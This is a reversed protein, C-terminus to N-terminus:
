RLGRRIQAKIERPTPLKPRGAVIRVEFEADALHIEKSAVKAYVPITIRATAGM